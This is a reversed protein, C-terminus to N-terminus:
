LTRPLDYPFRVLTEGNRANPHFGLGGAHRWTKMAQEKKPGFARERRTQAPSRRTTGNFTRVQPQSLASGPM